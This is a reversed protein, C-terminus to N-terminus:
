DTRAEGVTNSSMGLDPEANRGEIASVGDDTVALQRLAREADKSPLDLEGPVQSGDEEEPLAREKGKRSRPTSPTSGVRAHDWLSVAKSSPTSSSSRGANSSEGISRSTQPASIFTTSASSLATRPRSLLQRPSSQHVTSEISVVSLASTSTARSLSPALIRESPSLTDQTHDPPSM